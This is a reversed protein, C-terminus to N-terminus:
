SQWVVVLEMYRNIPPSIFTIEWRKGYFEVFDFIDIDKRYRIRITYTIETEDKRYELYDRGRTKLIEAWDTCILKNKQAYEGTILKVEELEKRSYFAVKVKNRGPNYMTRELFIVM